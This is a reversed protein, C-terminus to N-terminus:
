SVLRSKLVRLAHNANGICSRVLDTDFSSSSQRVYDADYARSAGCITLADLLHCEVNMGVKHIESPLSFACLSFAAIYISFQLFMLTSLPIPANQLTTLSVQNMYQQNLLRAMSCIVNASILCCASPPIPVLHPDYQLDIVHLFLMITTIHYICNLEMVFLGKWKTENPWIQLAPPLTNFWEDLMIKLEMAREINLHKNTVQELRDMRKEKLVLSCINILPLMYELRSLDHEFLTFQEDTAPVLTSFLRFSKVDIEDEFLFPATFVHSLRIDLFHLQFWVAMHFRQVELDLVKDDVVGPRLLVQSLKSALTFYTVSETDTVIPSALAFNALHIMCAVSFINGQDLDQHLLKQSYKYHHHATILNRQHRGVKCSILLSMAYM